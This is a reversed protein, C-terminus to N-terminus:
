ANTVSRNKASEAEPISIGVIDKYLPDPCLDLDGIWIYKGSDSIRTNEFASRDDWSEFVGGSARLHSLDVEGEVGDSFKVWITFGERAEVATPIIM